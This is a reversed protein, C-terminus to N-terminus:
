CLKLLPPRLSCSDGCSMSATCVLLRPDWHPTSWSCGLLGPDQHLTSGFRGLFCPDLCPVSRTMGCPGSSCFLNLPTPNIPLYRPTTHIRHLGLPLPGLPAHICHLDPAQCLRLPTSRPPTPAHIRCPATAWCLGLSPSDLPASCQSQLGVPNPSPLGATIKNSTAQLIRRHDLPKSHWIKPEKQHKVGVLYTELM